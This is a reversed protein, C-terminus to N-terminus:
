ARDAQEATPPEPRQDVDLLAANSPVGRAYAAKVLAHTSAPSTVWAFALIFLLKLTVLSLGAQLALGLLILAAGMTDILGAAHVREYFGPMRHMGLAGIVCFVAGGTLLLWSLLDVGESM